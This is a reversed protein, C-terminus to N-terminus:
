DHRDFERVFSGKVNFRERLLEIMADFTLIEDAFYTDTNWFVLATWGNLYHLFATHHQSPHMFEIDAFPFSSPRVHPEPCGCFCLPREVNFDGREWRKIKSTM